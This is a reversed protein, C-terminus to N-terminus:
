SNVKPSYVCPGGRRSSLRRVVWLVLPPLVTWQLLPALGTGLPPVRPMGDACQWGDLVETALWEFAATAALGAGVLQAIQRPTPDLVWGRFGASHSVVRWAGVTIAADGLSALTCFMVAKGPSLTNWCRYFPM